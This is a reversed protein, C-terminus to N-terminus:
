ECAVEEDWEDVIELTCPDVLIVHNYCKEGDPDDDDDDDPNVRVGSGYGNCNGSMDPLDVDHSEIQGGGWIAIVTAQYAAEINDAEYEGAPRPEVTLIYTDHQESYALRLVGVVKRGFSLVSGQVSIPPPPLIQIGDMGYVPGEWTTLLAGVIQQQLDLSSEGEITRSEKHAATHVFRDSLEGYSTTLTYALDLRSRHIQIEVELSGDDMCSSKYVSFYQNISALNLLENNIQDNRIQDNRLQQNNQQLWDLFGGDPPTSWEPQEIRLWDGEFQDALDPEVRNIRLTTFESM